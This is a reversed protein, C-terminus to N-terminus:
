ASIDHMHKIVSTTQYYPRKPKLLMRFCTLNEKHTKLCLFKRITQHEKSTQVKKNFHFTDIQLKNLLFVQGNIDWSLLNFRIIFYQGNQNKDKHIQLEAFGLRQLLCQLLQWLKVGTCHYFMVEEQKKKKNCLFDRLSWHNISPAGRNGAEELVWLGREGSQPESAWSISSCTSSYLQPHTNKRRIIIGVKSRKMVMIFTVSYMHTRTHTQKDRLSCDSLWCNVSSSFSGISFLFITPIKCLHMCVWLSMRKNKPCFLHQFIHQVCMGWWAAKGDPNKKM